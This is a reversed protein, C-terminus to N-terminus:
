LERRSIARPTPSDRNAPQTTPTPSREALSPQVSHPPPKLSVRPSILYRSPHPSLTIGIRQDSKSYRFTEDPRRRDRISVNIACRGMDSNDYNM